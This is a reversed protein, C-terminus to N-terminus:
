AIEHDLYHFVDQLRIVRIVTGAGTVPMCRVNHMMMQNAQAAAPDPRMIEKLCKRPLRDPDRLVKTWNLPVDPRTKQAAIGDM